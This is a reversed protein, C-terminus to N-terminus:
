PLPLSKCEELRGMRQIKRGTQVGSIQNGRETEPLYNSIAGVMRMFQTALGMVDEGIVARGFGLIVAVSVV